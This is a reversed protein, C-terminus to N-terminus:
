IFRKTCHKLVFTSSTKDVAFALLQTDRQYEYVNKPWWMPILQIQVVVAIMITLCLKKVIVCYGNDVLIGKQHQDSNNSIVPYVWIKVSSILHPLICDHEPFFAVIITALLTIAIMNVCESICSPTGTDKVKTASLSRSLPHSPCM